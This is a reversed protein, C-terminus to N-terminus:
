FILVQGIERRRIVGLLISVILILGQIGPLLQSSVGILILGNSLSALFLAVFVTGIVSLQGSRSLTSGLFAAALATILFDIGTALASAGYSYSALVVGSFGLLMGGLVFSATAYRARGVGRMEAAQLNQGVAYMRLGVITRSLFIHLLLTTAVLLLFVFPVPGVYGQGIFFFGPQNALTLAQGGNYLLTAGMTVFMTGLTAVFAPMGFVLVLLANVLGIGLGVALGLGISAAAGLGAIMTGAALNNAFQSIAGASMDFGGAILVVTLGIAIFALVSGQKLVDFINGFSVFQPALATICALVIMMGVISGWRTLSSGALPLIQSPTAPAANAMSEIQAPTDNGRSALELIAQPTLQDRPLVATMSGKHMVAIQDCLGCLEEFDSSIFLIAAGRRALESMQRYIEIKSGVDVGTTPEDFIVVKADGMLWRGIVVKQQNGGSLNRAIQRPNPPRIGLREILGAVDRKEDALKLLGGRSWRSLNPLTLNQQVTMDVLLGEHRRDEPILAFGDRFAARPTGPTSAKGDVTVTGRDRPLAGILSMALETRGAGVLGAIGFIEGSRITLDVGRVRMAYSLDKVELVPEGISIAEKPYLQEIQRGVMMAAIDARSVGTANRSEVLRGDRLVTFADVLDLVEDLYHSIYIITVGEDRLSRVIAFLMEAEAESLSATPEDLILIRPRRLLAAAISVQERQAVTLDRVLTEPAFTAGVKALLDATVSRMARLDLLGAANTRENGLFLNRTVDFQLVLQQDQHVIAIGAAEADRADRIRVPKGDILIDGGDAAYIGTLIKVLTSKGAGNQGLLAHIQGHRIALSVDDLAKVGAFSKGIRRCELAFEGTEPELASM